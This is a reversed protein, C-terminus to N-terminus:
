GFAIELITFDDEFQDKQSLILGNNYLHDMSSRRDAENRSMFESFENFRWMSGDPKEVEYVGDSFLYITTARGITHKSKPYDVNPIGGIIYNATRLLVPKSDPSDSGGLLLAPPHGASAYSLERSPKNYVGYWMTFFMDNNQESPFAANLCKLVSEPDNFDADPLSQSRLANIVSVSLLAAGVGHGSVDILYFAFHDRDLWHYGFADGGLSTSPVFRWDTRITGETIPPPLITRVYDAAEELEQNLQQLAHNRELLTQEIQINKEALELNTSRLNKEAKDATRVYYNILLALLLLVAFSSSLYQLKYQSPSLTYIEPTKFFLYLIIYASSVITFCFIRVSKKWNANFFSLGILYVLWLQLGSEWGVFYVGLVQHLLLEIFALTFAINHRGMRNLFFALTFMPVSFLANVWVMEVVQMERFIVILMAHGLAGIIYAIQTIVFFREDKQKVAEPIKNFM